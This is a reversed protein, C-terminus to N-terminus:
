EQTSEENKEETDTGALNSAQSESTTEAAPAEAAPTEAATATETTAARRARRSPAPAEASSSSGASGLIEAVRLKTYGQRHGRKRRYRTKAKFKFNVVKRAKGHEIVEAVVMAGDILPAGVNIDSGDTIMLVDRIEVRAGQDAAITAVEIVSGERV